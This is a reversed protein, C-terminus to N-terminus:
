SLKLGKFCNILYDSKNDQYEKSEENEGGNGKNYIIINILAEDNTDTPIRKLFLAGNNIPCKKLTKYDLITYSIGDDYTVVIKENPFPYDIVIKDKVYDMITIFSSISQPVDLKKLYGFCFVTVLFEKCDKTYDICEDFLKTDKNKYYTNLISPIHTINYDVKSTKCGTGCSRIELPFKIEFYPIPFIDTM